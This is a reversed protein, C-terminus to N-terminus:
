RLTNKSMNGFEMSHTKITREFCKERLENPERKIRFVSFSSTLFSKYNNFLKTLCTKKEQAFNSPQTHNKRAYEAYLEHLLQIMCYESHAVFYLNKVNPFKLGSSLYHLSFDMEVNANFKYGNQLIVHSAVVFRVLVLSFLPRIPAVM